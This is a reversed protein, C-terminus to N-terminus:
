AVGRLNFMREGTQTGAATAPLPFVNQAEALGTQNIANGAQSNGFTATTNDAGIALFGGVPFSVSSSLAVSAEGSAPCATSGSSALRTTPRAGDDYVGVDINGSSTSVRFAISSITGAGLARYYYSRNAATFASLGAISFPLSTVPFPISTGHWAETSSDYEGSDWIANIRKLASSGQNAWFGSM